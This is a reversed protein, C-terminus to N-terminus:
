KAKDVYSPLQQLWRAKVIFSPLISYNCLIEETPLYIINNSLKILM